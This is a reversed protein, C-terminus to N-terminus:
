AFDCPGTVVDTRVGDRWKIVERLHLPTSVHRNHFRVKIIETAWAPNDDDPEVLVDKERTSGTPRYVRHDSGVLTVDKWHRRIEIVTVGHTKVGDFVETETGGTIKLGLKGCRFTGAVPSTTVTHLHRVDPVPETAEQGSDSTVALAAAPAAALVVIAATAAGTKIQARRM